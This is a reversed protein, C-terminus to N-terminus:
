FISYQVPKKALKITELLGVCIPWLTDVHAAYFSSEYVLNRELSLMCGLLHRIKAAVSM